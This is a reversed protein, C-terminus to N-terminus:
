RIREIQQQEDYRSLNSLKKEMRRGRAMNREMVHTPLAPAQCAYASLSLSLSLSTDHRYICMGLFIMCRQIEETHVCCVCCLDMPIAQSVYGRAIATAVCCSVPASCIGYGKRPAINLKGRPYFIEYHYRHSVAIAVVITTTNNMPTAVSATPPLSTFGGRPLSTFRRWWLHYFPSSHLSM